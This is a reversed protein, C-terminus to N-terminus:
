ARAQEPRRQVGLWTVAGPDRGDDHTVYWPPPDLSILLAAAQTRTPVTM